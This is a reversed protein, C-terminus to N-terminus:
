TGKPLGRLWTTTGPVQVLGPSAGQVSVPLLGITRGQRQSVVGACSPSADCHKAADSVTLYTGPLPLATRSQQDVHPTYSSGGVVGLVQSTEPLGDLPLKGPVVLARRATLDELLASRLM